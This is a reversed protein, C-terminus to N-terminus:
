IDANGMMEVYERNRVIRLRRALRPYFREVIWIIKDASNDTSVDDSMVVHFNTYNQHELVDLYMKWTDKAFFNHFPSIVCM